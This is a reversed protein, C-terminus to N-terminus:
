FKRSFVGYGGYYGTSVYVIRNQWDIDLSALIFHGEPLEIKYWTNGGNKTRYLYAGIALIEQPNNPNLGLRRYPFLGDEWGLIRYFTKGKDTTKAINTFMGLYMISDNTPDIEIDYIANDTYYGLPRFQEYASSEWTEGIDNSKRLSAQFRGTEEGVWVENTSKPNFKIAFVNSKADRFSDKLKWSIGFDTSKYIASSLSAFVINYTYQNAAISLVESTTPYFPSTYLGSDSELWTKGYNTSRYIGAKNTGGLYGVLITDDIMTISNVGHELTREASSDALGLYEWQSNEYFLNLRYLGDRGACAYLYNKHLALESVLKGQLGLSWWVGLYPEVPGNKKCSTFISLILLVLIGLRISKENM